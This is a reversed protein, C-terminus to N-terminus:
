NQHIQRQQSERQLLQRKREIGWRYGTLDGDRRIIRHCPIAVAIRNAACAGAVARVSTPAGIRQALESYTVTTGAPIERLARWVREQFATGRIDLPLNLGIAPTEIFGVVQAVLHEFSADGGLLEAKPFQDQLKRVLEDPDDGLTIACVGRESQAILLAGLSCQAVAFQIRTSAGGRRYRGPQMGLLKEAHEYFRSSSNFGADYVAQTVSAAGALGDRLKRARQADGYAKPTLGTEAKFLRHFHFASVGAQKALEDLPPPTDSAEILRCAQAVLETRHQARTSQKLPTPMTYPQVNVPAPHAM